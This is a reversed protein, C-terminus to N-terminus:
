KRLINLLEISTRSNIPNKADVIIIRKIENKSFEQLLEYLLKHDSEILHTVNIILNENTLKLLESKLSESFTNKNFIYHGNLSYSKATKVDWAQQLSDIFEGASARTDRTLNRLLGQEECAIGAIAEEITGFDCKYNKAPDFRFNKWRPNSDIKQLDKITSELLGVPDKRNLLINDYDLNLISKAEEILSKNYILELEAVKQQFSLRSISEQPITVPEKIPNNEQGGNFSQLLAATEKTEISILAVPTSGAIGGAIQVAEMLAIAEHSIVVAGSAGPPPLIEGMSVICDGIVNSILKAGSGLAKNAALDVILKAVFEKKHQVDLNKWNESFKHVAENYKKSFEYAGQKTAGLASINSNSYDIIFSGLFHGLEGFDKATQLLYDAPNTVTEYAYDGIEKMPFDTLVIKFSDKIVESINEALTFQTDRNLVITEIDLLASDKSLSLYKNVLENKLVDDHSSWLQDNELVERMLSHEYLTNVDATQQPSTQFRQIEQSSYSETKGTHMLELSRLFFRLNKQSDSKYMEPRNFVDLKQLVESITKNFSIQSAASEDLAEFEKNLKLLLSQLQNIRKEQGGEQKLRNIENSLNAIAPLVRRLMNEKATVLQAQTFNCCKLITTDGDKSQVGRSIADAFDSYRKPTESTCAKAVYQIGLLLADKDQKNSCTVLDFLIKQEKVHEKDTITTPIPIAHLLTQDYHYFLPLGSANMLQKVTTYHDNDNKYRELKEYLLKATQSANEAVYPILDTLERVLEPSSQINFREIFKESYEQLCEHYLATILAAKKQESPNNNQNYKKVIQEAKLFQRNKCLDQIALLNNRFDNKQILRQLTIPSGKLTCFESIGKCLAYVHDGFGKKQTLEQHVEAFGPRGAAALNEVTQLYDPQLPMILDYTIIKAIEYHEYNTFILRPHGNRDYLVYNIKDITDRLHSQYNVVIGTNLLSQQFNLKDLCLVSSVSQFGNAKSLVDIFNNLQQKILLQEHAQLQGLAALTNTAESPIDVAIFDDNPVNHRFHNQSNRQFPTLLRQEQERRHSSGYDIIPRDM